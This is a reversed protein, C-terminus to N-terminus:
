FITKIPKSYIRPKYGDDFSKEIIKKKNIYEDITEILKNRTNINSFYLVNLLIFKQM